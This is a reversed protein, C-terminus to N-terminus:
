PGGGPLRARGSLAFAGESNVDETDGPPTGAEDTTVNEGWAGWIKGWGKPPAEEFSETFWPTFLPSDGKKEEQGTTTGIRPVIASDAGATAATPASGRTRGDAMPCVCRDAGVSASDATPGNTMQVLIALCVAASGVLTRM